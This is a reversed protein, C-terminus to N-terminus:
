CDEGIEKSQLRKEYASRRRKVNAEFGEVEVGVKMKEKVNVLFDNYSMVIPRYTPGPGGKRLREKRKELREKMEMSLKPMDIPKPKERRGNVEKRIQRRKEERRSL